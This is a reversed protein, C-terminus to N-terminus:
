YSEFVFGKYAKNKDIKLRITERLSSLKVSLGLFHILWEACDTICEFCKEVGQPSVVKVKRARGNQGRPRSLLRKALEKDNKYREVLVHNNYNPNSEGYHKYHGKAVSYAVNDAHTTWELNSVLNNTRCCDKHNVEPYNNPNPIFAKAVLIHIAVSKSKNNVNLKAIYYGDTNLRKDMIREKRYQVVGDSKVVKRALAKVNGFNSIQYYGEFGEIWDIDKWVEEM